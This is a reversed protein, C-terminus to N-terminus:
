CSHHRGERDPVTLFRGGASGGTKSFFQLILPDFRKRVMRVPLNSSSAPFHVPLKMLNFPLNDNPPRAAAARACISEMLRM